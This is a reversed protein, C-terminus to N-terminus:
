SLKDIITSLIKILEYVETLHPDVDIRDGWKRKTLKLWYRTEAAERRAIGFHKRKEAKTLALDAEEVNAGISTCSDAMQSRVVNGEPTSPIAATVDLLVDAFELTRERLDYPKRNGEPQSSTV